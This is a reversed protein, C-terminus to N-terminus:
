PTSQGQNLLRDKLRLNVDIFSKLSELVDDSHSKDHLDINPCPVVYGMTTLARIIDEDDDELYRLGDLFTLIGINRLNGEEGFVSYGYGQPGPGDPILSGTKKVFFAGALCAVCVGEGEDKDIIRGWERMNPNVLLDEATYLEGRMSAGLSLYADVIFGDIEDQSWQTLDKTLLEYMLQEQTDTMYKV